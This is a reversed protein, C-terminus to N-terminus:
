GRDRRSAIRRAIGHEAVLEAVVEPADDAALPVVVRWDLQCAVAYGLSVQRLDDLREFATVGAGRAEIRRVAEEPPVRLWITLDPWPAWAQQRELLARTRTPDAGGQYAATSHVYRDLIVVDGRDLAPRIVHEVHRQRDLLFLDLEEEPPLRVGRQAAERIATGHPGSTPERSATVVVGIGWLRDALLRAQTTKGAGDIGEFTILM